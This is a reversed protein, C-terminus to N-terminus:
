TSIADAFITTSHHFFSARPTLRVLFGVVKDGRCVERFVIKGATLHHSKLHLAFVLGYIKAQWLLMSASPKDKKSAALPRKERSRSNGVRILKISDAVRRTRGPLCGGPRHPAAVSM